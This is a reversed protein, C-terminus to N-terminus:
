ALNSTNNFSKSFNLFIFPSGLKKSLNNNNYFNLINLLGVVFSSSSGVGSRSPMDGDYHIELGSISKIYKKFFLLSERVVGHNIHKVDKVNEKLIMIGDACLTTVNGKIKKQAVLYTYM